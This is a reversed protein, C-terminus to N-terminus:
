DDKKEEIRLFGFEGVLIDPLDESAPVLSEWKYRTDGTKQDSKMRIFNAGIKVFLKQDCTYAKVEKRGNGSKGLNYAIIVTFAEVLQFGTSTPPTLKKM